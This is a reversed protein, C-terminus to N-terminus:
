GIRHHSDEGTPICSCSLCLPGAPPPSTRIHNGCRRCSPLKAIEQRELEEFLRQFEPSDMAVANEKAFQEETMIFGMM